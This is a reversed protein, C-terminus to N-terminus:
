THPRKTRYIESINGIFTSGGDEPDVLLGLLYGVFLLRYAYLSPSLNTQM